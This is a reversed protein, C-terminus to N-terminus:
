LLATESKTGTTVVLLNAPGTALKTLQNFSSKSTRSSPSSLQKPPHQNARRRQATVRAILGAAQLRALREETASAVLSGDPRYGPISSNMTRLCVFPLPSVAPLYKLSRCEAEAHRLRFGKSRQATRQDISSAGM